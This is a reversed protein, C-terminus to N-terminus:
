SWTMSAAPMHRCVHPARGASHKSDRLLVHGLCVLFWTHMWGGMVVIGSVTGCLSSLRRLLHSTIRCERDQLRGKM